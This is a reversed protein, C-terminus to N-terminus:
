SLHIASERWTCKMWNLQMKLELGNVANESTGSIHKTGCCSTCKLLHSQFCLGMWTKTTNREGPRSCSSPLCSCRKQCVNGSSLQDVADEKCGSQTERKNLCGNHHCLSENSSNCLLILRYFEIKIRVCPHMIICIIKKYFFFSLKRFM